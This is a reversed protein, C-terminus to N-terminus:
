STVCTMMIIKCRLLSRTKRMEKGEIHVFYSGQPYNAVNLEIFEEYDGIPLANILAGKADFISLKTPLGSPM